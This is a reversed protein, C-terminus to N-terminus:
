YQFIFVNNDILAILKHIYVYLTNKGFETLLAYTKADCLMCQYYIEVETNERRIYKTYNFFEAYFAIRKHEIPDNGFGSLAYVAYGDCDVKALTIQKKDKFYTKYFDNNKASDVLTETSEYIIKDKYGAMISATLTLEKNNETKINYIGSDFKWPGLMGNEYITEINRDYLDWAIKQDRLWRPPIKRRRFSLYFFYIKKIDHTQLDHTSMCEIRANSSTNASISTLASPVLLSTGFLIKWIKKM